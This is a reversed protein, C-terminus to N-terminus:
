SRLTSVEELDDREVLLMHGVEVLHERLQGWAMCIDDALGITNLRSAAAEKM